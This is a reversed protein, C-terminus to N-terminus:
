KLLKLQAATGARLFSRTSIRSRGGVPPYKAVQVFAGAEAASNIMPAIIGEAGFDLMRSVTAKERLPVRVVPAACPSIFIM